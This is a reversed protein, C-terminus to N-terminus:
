CKKQLQGDKSSESPDEGQISQGEKHRFNGGNQLECEVLRQFLFQLLQPRFGGPFGNQLRPLRRLRCM